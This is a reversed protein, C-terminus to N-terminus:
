LSCKLLLLLVAVPDIIAVVVADHFGITGLVSHYIQFTVKRRSKEGKRGGEIRLSVCINKVFSYQGYKTRVFLKLNKNM